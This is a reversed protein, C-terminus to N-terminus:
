FMGGSDDTSTREDHKFTSITQGNKQINYNEVYGNEGNLTYIDVEHYNKQADTYYVGLTNISSTNWYYPYIVFYCEYQWTRSADESPIMVEHLKEGPRIGVIKTSLNPAIAKALDMIRMSPIKPIFIEQGQGIRVSDQEDVAPPILGRNIRMM